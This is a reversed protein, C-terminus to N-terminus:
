RGLAAQLGKILDATEAQSLRASPHTPLYTVPPMEGDQIVEFIEETRYRRGTNWESFNLIQRGEEV